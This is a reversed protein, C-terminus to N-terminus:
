AVVARPNVPMQVLSLERLTAVTVFAHFGTSSNADVLDFDRVDVAVSLAPSRAARGDDVIPRCM